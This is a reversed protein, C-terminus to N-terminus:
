TPVVAQGTAGGTAVWTTSWLPLLYMALQQSKVSLTARMHPVVGGWKGMAPAAWRPINMAPVVTQFSEKTCEVNPSTLAYSACRSEQATHCPGSFPFSRALMHLAAFM